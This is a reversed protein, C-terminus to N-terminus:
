PLPYGILLDGRRLIIAKDIAIAAYLVSRGGKTPGDTSKWAEHQGLKRYTPGTAIVQITGNKCAFLLSNDVRLPTAWLSAPLRQSYVEKGTKLNVAFLVGSRNVFYAMKGCAIPSGFSSTARQAHWVYAVDFEQQGRPTIRILGNSEHATTGGANRSGVTAGMLFLGDGVPMPTPTSNGSVGDFEWLKRGTDPDIGVLKGIGSLVLHKHNGVPVLRPSAWSTANIGHVKWRNKGTAKDVSLLYPENSREIWVFVSDASQELSSALGHNTKIVGYQKRLDRKWRVKGDHDCSLLLGGEFFVTIGQADLVPTPAAKSVYLNSERPSPNPQSIEWALTGDKIRHALVGCRDKNKGSVYTTYVHGQWCVPSSQGYGKLKIEWSNGFIKKWDFTTTMEVSADYPGGNQFSSWSDQAQTVPMLLQLLLWLSVVQPLVFKTGPGTIARDHDVPTRSRKRKM